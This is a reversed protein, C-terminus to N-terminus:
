FIVEWFRWLWWGVLVFTVIVVGRMSQVARRDYFRNLLYANTAIAVLATTRERFKPRFDDSSVLDAADLGAFIAWLLGFTLAPLVLALLAGYGLNNRDFM